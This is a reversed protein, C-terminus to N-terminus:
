LLARKAFMIQKELRIDKAGSLHVRLKVKHKIQVCQSLLSTPYAQKEPIAVRIEGYLQNLTGAKLQLQAGIIKEKVIYHKDSDSHRGSVLHSYEKLGLSIERVAVSNNLLTLQVVVIIMERPAFDTRNLTMVHRINPNDPAGGKDKSNRDLLTLFPDPRLPPLYQFIPCKASISKKGSKFSLLKTERTIIVKLRYYIKARKRVLSLSPPLDNVLLIKFPVDLKFIKEFKGPSSSEWLRIVGCELKRKAYYTTSNNGYNRTFKIDEKGTFKLDISSANLPNEEPFRLHFTGQVYSPQVGLYGSQFSTHNPLLSFYMKTSYKDYASYPLVGSPSSIIEEKLFM